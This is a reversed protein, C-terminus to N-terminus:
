RMSEDVLGNVSTTVYRRPASAPQHYHQVTTYKQGHVLVYSQSTSEIGWSRLSMSMVDVADEEVRVKGRVGKGCHRWYREEFTEVVAQESGHVMAGSGSQGHDQGRMLAELDCEVGM